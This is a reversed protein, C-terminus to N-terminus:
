GVEVDGVWLFGCLGVYVWMIKEWRLTSGRVLGFRESAFRVLGFGLGGIWWDRMAGGALWDLFGDIWKDLM